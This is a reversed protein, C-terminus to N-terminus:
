PAHQDFPHRGSHLEVLMVNFHGDLEEAHSDIFSKRLTAGALVNHARAEVNDTPLLLRRVKEQVKCIM